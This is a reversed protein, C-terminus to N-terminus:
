ILHKLYQICVLYGIIGLTLTLPIALIYGITKVTAILLKM